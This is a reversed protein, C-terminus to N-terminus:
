LAQRTRLKKKKSVLDKQIYIFNFINFLFIKIDPQKDAKKCHNKYYKVANNTAIQYKPTYKLYTTKLSNLELNEEQDHLHFKKLLFIWNKEKREKKLAKRRLVKEKQKKRKLDKKIDKLYCNPGWTKGGTKLAMVSSRNSM